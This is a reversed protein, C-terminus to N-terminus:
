GFHRYLLRGTASLLPAPMHLFMEGALRQLRGAPLADAVGQAKPFRWYTVPVRKAGLRDKFTILGSEELGLPGFGARPTWNVQSGPDSELLAM